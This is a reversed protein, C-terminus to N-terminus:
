RRFSLIVNLFVASSIYSLRFSVFSKYKWKVIRAIFDRMRLMKNLKRTLIFEQTFVGSPARQFPEIKNALKRKKKLRILVSELDNPEIPDM